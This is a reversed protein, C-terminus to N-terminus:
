DNIEIRAIIQNVIVYISSHSCYNLQIAINSLSKNEFFYRKIIELDYQSLQSLIDNTLKVIELDIPKEKGANKTSYSYCLFLGKIYRQKERM